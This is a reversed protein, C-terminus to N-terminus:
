SDYTLLTKINAGKGEPATEVAKQWVQRRQEPELKALPHTQELNAPISV